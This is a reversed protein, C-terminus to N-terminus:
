KIIYLGCNDGTNTILIISNNKEDFSISKVTSNKINKLVKKDYNLVKIKKDETNSIIIAGKNPTLPASNEDIAAEGEALDISVTKDKIFSYFNIKNM